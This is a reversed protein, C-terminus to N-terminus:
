AGGGGGGQQQMIVSFVNTDTAYQRDQTGPVWIEASGVAHREGVSVYCSGSIDPTRQWIGECDFTIMTGEVLAVGQNGEDYGAM